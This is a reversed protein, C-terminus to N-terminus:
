GVIVGGDGLSEFAVWSTVPQMGEGLLLARFEPVGEHTVPQHPLLIPFAGGGRSMPRLAPSRKRTDGMAGIYDIGGVTIINLKEGRRPLKNAQKPTFYAGAGRQTLQGHPLVALVTEEDVRVNGSYQQSLIWRIVLDLIWRYFDTQVNLM